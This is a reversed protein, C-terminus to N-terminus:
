HIHEMETDDFTHSWERNEAPALKKSLSLSAYMAARSFISQETDTFEHLSTSFLCFLTLRGDDRRISTILGSTPEWSAAKFGVPRLLMPRELTTTRMFEPRTDAPIITGKQRRFYDEISDSSVGSQALVEVMRLDDGASVICCPLSFVTSIIAVIGSLTLDLNDTRQYLGCLASNAWQERRREAEVHSLTGQLLMYDIALELEHPSANKTIYNMTEPHEHSDLFAADRPDLHYLVPQKTKEIFTKASKLTSELADRNVDLIIVTPNFQSILRPNSLLEAASMCTTAFHLKVTESILKRKQSESDSAIVILVNRNKM